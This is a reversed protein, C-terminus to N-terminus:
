LFLETIKGQVCQIYERHLVDRKFFDTTAPRAAASTRLKHRLRSEEPISTLYKIYTKYSTYYRLLCERWFSTTSFM